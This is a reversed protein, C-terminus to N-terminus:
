YHRRLVDVRNHGLDRSVELEKERRNREQGRIFDKQKEEFLRAQAYQRRFSHIDARVPITEFLPKNLEKGSIIELVREVMSQLVRKNYKKGGKGRRIHVWLQGDKWYFDGPTLRSLEGRRCGTARAMDVLDRNKEESFKADMVVPYRSRKLDKKHRVPLEVDCCLLRDHFIKRLASRDKQLTDPSLGRDVREQLYVSAAERAGEWSRIGHAKCWEAFHHAVEFYNQLTGRKGCSYIGRPEVGFGTRGQAHAEEIAQKKALHKPKGLQLQEELSLRFLHFLSPKGM